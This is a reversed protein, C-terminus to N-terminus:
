SKRAKAALALRELSVPCRCKHSYDVFDLWYAPPLKDRKLWGNVASTGVGMAAALDTPRGTARMFDTHTEV